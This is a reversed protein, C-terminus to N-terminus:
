PTRHLLDAFLIAHCILAVPEPFRPIDIKQRYEKFPGDPNTVIFPQNGHSLAKEIESYADEQYDEQDINAVLTILLPEGSMDIHKHNELYDFAFARAFRRTFRISLEKAVLYNIGSGVIKLNEKTEILDRLENLAAQISLGKTFRKIENTRSILQNIYQLFRFNKSDDMGLQFIIIALDLALVEQVVQDCEMESLNTFIADSFGSWRFIDSSREGSVEASIDIEQESDAITLLKPKYGMSRDSYSISFTRLDGFERAFLDLIEKARILRTTDGEGIVFRNSSYRGASANVSPDPGPLEHLIRDENSDLAPYTPRHASGQRFRRQTGVTITKAQHKITDIPRRSYRRLYELREKIAQTVDTSPAIQHKSLLERLRHVQDFPYGVHILHNNPPDLFTMLLKSLKKHRDIDRIARQFVEKRKDLALAAHYSLLQAGLITSLAALQPPYSENNKGIINTFLDLQSRSGSKVGLSNLVIFNNNLSIEKVLDGGERRSFYNPIYIVSAGQVNCLEFERISLAPVAKYCCESLKIRTELGIDELGDEYVVYWDRTAILAESIQDLRTPEIAELTARIVSPAQVIAAIENLVKGPREKVMWILFLCFLYGKILHAAYTKSSPVAIEIDRGDGLYLTTDVAYSIDGERKNLIAICYAGRERALRVYVNTDITTGSQAIAVVITRSLDPIIHFASGESAMVSSVNLQLGAVETCGRFYTAIAAAATYCTGMGTFVIEKIQGTSIRSFLESPLDLLDGQFMPGDGSKPNERIISRSLTKAVIEETEHIEKLFYHKFNKRAIDRTTIPTFHYAPTQVVAKAEGSKLRYFTLTEKTSSIDLLCAEGDKIQFIEQTEEVLGYVDSAFILRDPSSGFYLGQNGKRLILIQSPCEDSVLAATFSGNLSAAKQAIQTWDQFVNPDSFAFSLALTDSTINENLRDSTQRGTSSEIVERYNYIDGNMMSFITAVGQVPEMVNVLPHTNEDNVPGVSAWRTHAIIAIEEFAGSGILRLAFPDDKFQELIKEANEGLSGIRNFNKYICSISIVNNTIKAFHQGKRRAEQFWKKNAENNKLSIRFIVGLSDRGRIELINIANIITKLTKYFIIVEPKLLDKYILFDSVFQYRLQLETGLFWETDQIQQLMWEEGEFLFEFNSKPIGLTGVRRLDSIRGLINQVGEREYESDFYALFNCDTRYKRALNYLTTCDESNKTELFQSLAADLHAPKVRTSFDVTKSVITGALGCM